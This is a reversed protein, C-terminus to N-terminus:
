LNFHADIHKGDKACRHVNQLKKKCMRYNDQVNKKCM